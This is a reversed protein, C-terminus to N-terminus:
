HVSQWFLHHSKPQLSQCTQCSGGIVCDLSKAANNPKFNMTAKWLILGLIGSFSNAVMIKRMLTEDKGNNHHYKEPPITFLENGSPKKFTAIQSSLCICPFFYGVKSHFMVIHEAFSDAAL